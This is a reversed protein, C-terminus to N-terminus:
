RESSSHTRYHLNSLAIWRESRMIALESMSKRFSEANQIPLRWEPLLEIKSNNGLQLRCSRLEFVRYSQSTDFGFMCLFFYLRWPCERVV